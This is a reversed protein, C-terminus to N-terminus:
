KDRFTWKDTKPMYWVTMLGIGNSGGSKLEYHVDVPMWFTEEKADYEAIGTVVIKSMMTKFLGASARLDHSQVLFTGNRRGPQVIMDVKVGLLDKLKAALPSLNVSAMNPTASEGEMMRSEGIYKADVGFKQKLILLARDRDRVIDQRQGYFNENEAADSFAKDPKKGKAIQDLTGKIVYAIGENGTCARLIDKWSPGSEASMVEDIMRSMNRMTKITTM